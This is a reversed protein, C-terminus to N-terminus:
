KHYNRTEMPMYWRMNWQFPTAPAHALPRAALEDVMKTLNTKKREFRPLEQMRACREDM